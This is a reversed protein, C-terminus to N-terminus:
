YTLSLGWATSYNHTAYLQLKISMSYNHEVVTNLVNIIICVTLFTELSRRTNIVEASCARDVAHRAIKVSSATYSKPLM